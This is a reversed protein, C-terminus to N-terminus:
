LLEETPISWIPWGESQGSQQNVLPGESANTTINHSIPTLNSLFCQGM